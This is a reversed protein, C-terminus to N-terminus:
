VIQYTVSTEYSNTPDKCLFVSTKKRRIHVRLALVIFYETKKLFM